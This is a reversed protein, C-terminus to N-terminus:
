TSLKFSKMYSKAIYNKKRAPDTKLGLTPGTEGVSNLKLNYLASKENM